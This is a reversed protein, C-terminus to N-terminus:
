IMNKASVMYLNSSDKSILTLIDIGTAQTPTYASGSIQKITNQFTMTATGTTNVFISVTEGPRINTPNLHTSTGNVLQLTFYNADNLNMSATNSTITLPLVNGQLSGTVIISGSYPSQFSTGSTGATGSSGSTGSTGSTQGTYSQGNLIIDTTVYLSGSITQNAKFVNSGTLAFETSDKGDLKDANNAYLATSASVANSTTGSITANITGLVTLDGRVHASGSVSLSGTILPEFIKM